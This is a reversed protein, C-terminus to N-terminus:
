NTEYTFKINVIQGSSAWVNNTGVLTKIQQPTLDVEIPTQLPYVIETDGENTKFDQASTYRADKIFVDKNVGGAYIAYAPANGIARGDDICQYQSCYMTTLRPGTTLKIDKITPTAFRSYGGEYVWSCNSVTTRGWEVVLKGSVVDLTGGYVTQGLSTTYTSGQYPEYSTATSPYNISIDNNYAPGYAGAVGFMIYKANSPTTFTANGAFNALASIFTNDADYFVVASVMQPCKLYYDTNPLCPIFNKSRIRDTATWLTGNQNNIGGLEWEEDWVNIGTRTVRVEDHGTIPCINSYPSYATASSGEELQYLFNDSTVYSTAAQFNRVRVYATNAPTTFPSVTYQGLISENADWCTAVLGGVREKTNKAFISTSYATNPKAPTLASTRYDTSLSHQGSETYYGVEIASNDVKNKGAGGVWPKDYGNLDQIPEIGVTLETVDAEALSDFTLIPTVDSSTAEGNVITLESYGDGADEISGIVFSNGGIQVVQGVEINSNEKVSLLYGLFDYTGDTVQSGITTGDRDFGIITVNSGTRGLSYNTAVLYGNATSGKINGINEIGNVNLKVVAANFPYGNISYLRRLLGDDGQSHAITSPLTIGEVIDDDYIHTYGVDEPVFEESTYVIEPSTNNKAIEINWSGLEDGSFTFSFNNVKSTDITSNYPNLNYPGRIM